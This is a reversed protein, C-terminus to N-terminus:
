VALQFLRDALAPAIIVVRLQIKLGLQLARASLGTIELLAHNGKQFFTRGPVLPASSKAHTHCPAAVDYGRRKRDPASQRARIWNSMQPQLGPAWARCWASPWVMWCCPPM